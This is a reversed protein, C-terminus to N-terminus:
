RLLNMYDLTADGILPNLPLLIHFTSGPCKEPNYGQSEVWIDGGHMEVIGKAIALGLGTGKSRFAVKGSSHEEINGVEYFKDFIRLQDDRDIGIGTDEVTVEVYLHHEKGINVVKQMQETAAAQKSRLLYKASTTVKIKGGDPTFKIANGLVNTLLQVFRFSDGRIVPITEDLHLVLEQKRLSFFFRLENVSLEVLRNLNVDEIKLQLRKEDIMSVDVMDKVISDLRNASNSINEVMEVVAKDIKDAMDTLILESYGMIVTLPTKLEHSALGLFSDKMKNLRALDEASKELNNVIEREKTVDRFITQVLQEGGSKVSSAHLKAVVQTGEKNVFQIEDAVHMGSFADKFLKHIRPIDNINLLLLLKTLPLGVVEKASYGFFEEAMKNAMKVTEDHGIVIIADSADEMLSKYLEESRELELSLSELKLYSSHLKVHTNELELYNNQIEEERSNLSESMFNINKALENFEYVPVEQIRTEFAGKSIKGLGTLLASIPQMISKKVFIVVLSFAIMFSLILVFVSRIIMAEVKETVMKEQFGVHVRAVQRGEPSMIPIVSDYFLVDKGVLNSQEGQKTSITRIVPEFKLMSFSPENMFLPNGQLDTIVCYSIDPNGQVLERCKESIGVIDALDLGLGLVKEVSNRMSTGLSQSRLVLANVYDRRFGVIDMSSNALITLFLVIFSFLIIRNELTKKMRRIQFGIVQKSSYSRNEM